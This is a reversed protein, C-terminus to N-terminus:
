SEQQLADQSANTSQDIGKVQEQDTDGEEGSDNDHAGDGSSLQEPKVYKSNVSQVKSDNDQDSETYIHGVDM